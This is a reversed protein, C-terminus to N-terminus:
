WLIFFSLYNRPHLLKALRKTYGVKPCIAQNSWAFVKSTCSRFRFASPNYPIRHDHGNAPTFKTQLFLKKRDIGKKALKLLAEGVLSEQYHKPQNATDIGSFGTSIAKEVLVDTDNEKWATGYIFSPFKDGNNMDM